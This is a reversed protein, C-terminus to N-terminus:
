GAKLKRRFVEASGMFEVCAIKARRAWFAMEGRRGRGGSIWSARLHFFVLDLKGSSLGSKTIYQVCALVTDPCKVSVIAAIGVRGTREFRYFGRTRCLRTM